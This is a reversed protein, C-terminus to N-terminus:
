KDMSVVLKINGLSIERQMDKMGQWLYEYRKNNGRTLVVRMGITYRDLIETVVDVASCIGEDIMWQLSEVAAQRMRTATQLTTKERELLWLKSGIKREKTDAWWGRRTTEGLPLEDTDEARRDTFLSVLVSSYLGTDKQLDNAGLQLDGQIERWILLADM